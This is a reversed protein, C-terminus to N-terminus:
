LRTVRSPSRAGVAQFAQYAVGQFTTRILYSTGDLTIREAQLQQPDRMLDPWLSLTGKEELRAQLDVELCLALFSAVIHGISTDDRHRYIPRIKLTSKWCKGWCNERRLYSTRNTTCDISTRLLVGPFVAFSRESGTRYPM